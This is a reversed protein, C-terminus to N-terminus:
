DGESINIPGRLGQPERRRREIGVTTGGEVPFVEFTPGEASQFRMPMAAHVTDAIAGDTLGQGTEMEVAAGRDVLSATGSTAGTRNGAGVRQTTQPRVLRHSM